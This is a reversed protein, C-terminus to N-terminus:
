SITTGKFPKKAFAKKLETLNKGNLIHVTLGYRQARRSAIPDFPASKGPVWEHGVIENRFQKWGMKKIKKANKNKSPDSDYVYDINSLNFVEKARYTLAKLVADMDSSFGEKWGAGIIIKKSTRVRKRPDTVVTHHAHDGFVEKLLQANLKTGAIGIRDLSGSDTAGLKKAADQYLRAPAGGGVIIVFRTGKKSESIILQTFKKLFAFDFGTSPSVLSGGLSIVHTKM